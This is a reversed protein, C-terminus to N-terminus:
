INDFNGSFITDQFYGDILIPKPLAEIENRDYFRGMSGDINLSDEDHLVVLHFDAFITRHSLLHRIQSSKVIEFKGKIKEKIETEPDTIEKELLYFDFLSNWIGAERKKMWFRGNSLFVFYTFNVVQVKPKKLKVPYFSQNNEKRAICEQNFQCSSCKPSKPTCVMAGFEMIGQNYESINTEPALLNATKRFSSIGKGSSIDDKMGFVRALVRFVNGDVVGVREGFAFSAIAAATYPGIGPLKLLANYGPPFTGGYEELVIRACKHLNRARSYYGLGQWTRLVDSIDTKALDDVTPYKSVFKEYYPLGQSVRTQQLIIESLWILYPDKTERWPLDRKNKVYWSIIRGTFSGRSIM